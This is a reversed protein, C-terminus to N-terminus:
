PGGYIAARAGVFVGGAEAYQSYLYMGELAPGLAFYKLRLAEFSTGLSVMSMLGGDAKEPGGKITLAGPGVNTFISLDRFRGGLSWLPFTEVHVLFGSGTAEVDGKTAGMGYIGLGFVFWDRLAGGLWVTNMGGITFGTKSEYEPKDLKEVENPYGVASSLGYGLSIAAAFGSRREAKIDYGGDWEEQTAKNVSRDARLEARAPDALLATSCLGTLAGIVLQPKM